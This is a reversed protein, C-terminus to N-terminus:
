PVATFSLHHAPHLPQHFADQTQLNPKKSKTQYRQNKQNHAAHLLATGFFKLFSIILRKPKFGMFFVQGPTNCM